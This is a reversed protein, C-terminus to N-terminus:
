QDVTFIVYQGANAAQAFFEPLGQFNSWTYEWDEESKEGRYNPFSVDFYRSRLWPEDVKAASIAFHVRRCGM